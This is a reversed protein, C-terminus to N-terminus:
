GDRKVAVADLMRQSIAAHGRDNPHFSDSLGDFAAVGAPGTNEAIEAIDSISRFVGGRAECLDKIITDFRASVDRPRWAGMCLLAAHPAASRIRDLLEAYDQRFIRHTVRVADNTGLEIVYLDQDRPMGPSQLALQVTGGNSNLSNDAVPGDARWDEVMLQHFGNEQSSAYLGRDLSDGVFTVHLPEGPALTVEAKQPSLATTEPSGFLYAVLATCVLMLALSAVLLASGRNWRVARM